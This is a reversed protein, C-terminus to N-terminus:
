NLAGERTDNHLWVEIGNEDKYNLIPSCWCDKSECHTKDDPVTHVHEDFFLANFISATLTTLQHETLSYGTDKTWECIALDIDKPKM